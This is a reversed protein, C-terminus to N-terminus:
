NNKGLLGQLTQLLGSLDGLGGAGAKQGAGDAAGGAVGGLLDALPNEAKAGGAGGAAGGLLDALPNNGNAGGALLGNLLDTLTNGSKQQDAGDNAGADASAGAGDQGKGKKGNNDGNKGAKGGQNANGTGNKIAGGDLASATGNNAAGHHHKKKPVRIDLAFDRPTRVEVSGQIPQTPLAAVFSAATALAMLIAGFNKM